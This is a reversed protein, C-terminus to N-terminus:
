KQLITGFTLNEEDGVFTESSSQRSIQYRKSSVQLTDTHLTHELDKFEQFHRFPFLSVWQRADVNTAALVLM